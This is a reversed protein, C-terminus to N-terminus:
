CNLLPTKMITQFADEQTALNKDFFKIMDKLPFVKHYHPQQNGIKKNNNTRYEHGGAKPTNKHVRLWIHKQKASVFDMM